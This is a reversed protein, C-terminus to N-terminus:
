GRWMWFLIAANDFVVSYLYTIKTGNQIGGAESIGVNGVIIKV